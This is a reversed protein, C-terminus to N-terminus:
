IWSNQIEKEVLILVQFHLRAIKKMIDELNFNARFLNGCHISTISSVEELDDTEHLFNFAPIVRKIVKSYQLILWEIFINYYEILLNAILPIRVSLLNM